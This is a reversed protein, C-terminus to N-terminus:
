SQNIMVATIALSKIQVNHLQQAISKPLRHHYIELTTTLVGGLQKLDVFSLMLHPNGDKFVNVPM